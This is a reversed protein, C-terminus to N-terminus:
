ATRNPGRGSSTKRLKSPTVPMRKEEGSSPVGNARRIALIKSGLDQITTLPVSEVGDLLKEFDMRDLISKMSDEPAADEPSSGPPEYGAAALAAVIAGASAGAYGRITLSPESWRVQALAGVHGIGKVGGGEFVAFIDPM